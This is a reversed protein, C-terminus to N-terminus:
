SEFHVSQHFSDTAMSALALRFSHFAARSNLSKERDATMEAVVPADVIPGALGVAM